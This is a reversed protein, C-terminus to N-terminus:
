DHLLNTMTVQNSTLEHLSAIEIEPWQMYSAYLIGPFSSDEGNAKALLM